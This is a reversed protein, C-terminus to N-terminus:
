HAQKFDHFSEVKINPFMVDISPTEFKGEKNLTSSVMPEISQDQDTIAEIIIQTNEKLKIDSFVKDLELRSTAQKFEFGFTSAIDNISPIFVGNSGDTGIKRGEFFKDHTTRISRYGNNNVILIIVSNGSAKISALEQVCTMLSGDGTIVLTSKQSNLKVCSAGLGYPIAMGMAGFSGSSIFKFPHEVDLAQPVIYWAMGADTTVTDFLHSNHSITDIVEYYCMINEKNKVPFYRLYKTRLDMIYDEWIPFGIKSNELFLKLQSLADEVSINIVNDISLAKKRASTIHEDIEFWIKKAKPNFKQSDWGVIQQHLSSGIIMLSDCEQSLINASRNGRLGIVGGYNDNASGLELAQPTLIYPINYKKLLFYLSESCGARLVGAGILFLPSESSFHELLYKNIKTEKISIEKTPISSLMDIIDNISILKGQVDLPIELLAPGPRGEVMHYLADELMKIAIIEDPIIECYKTIKKFCDISDFEFTGNQRLGKINNLRVSDSTKVQGGIFLVTSSDQYAAAVSTFLNALGPGTTGMACGICNKTRSYADAAAGAFQENHVCMLNMDGQKAIADVLYMIGGGTLSFIHNCNAELMRSIIYDSVTVNGEKSINELRSTLSKINIELNIM